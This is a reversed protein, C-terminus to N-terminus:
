NDKVQMALSFRFDTIETHSVLFTMVNKNGNTLTIDLTLTKSEGPALSFIETHVAGDATSMKTSGQVGILELSMTETGDNRIDYYFSYSSGATIAHATLFRMAMNKPATGSYTYAHGSENNIHTRRYASIKDRPDEGSDTYNYSDDVTGLYDPQGGTYKGCGPELRTYGDRAAFYPALTLTEGYAPILTSSTLELEDETDALYWGEITRGTTNDFLDSSPASVYEREKVSTPATDKATIGDPLDYVITVDGQAEREGVATASADDAATTMSMAVGFDFGNMAEGAVFYNLINQSTALSATYTYTASEGAALDIDVRYRTDEYTIGTKYESSSTITYYNLHLAESGYNEVNLSITYLAEGTCVASADTDMRFASYPTVASTEIIRQGAHAYGDEGGNVLVGNQYAITKNATISGPVTDFNFYSSVSDGLTLATYGDQPAFYPAITLGSKKITTTEDALTHTGYVYWGEVAYPLTNTIQEATPVVLTSGVEVETVYSSDVTIGDPLVLTITTKEAESITTPEDLDTKKLSISMGLTMGNAMDADAVLYTLANSNSTLTWQGVANMAEGPALDIDIRYTSLYATNGDRYDASGKVQYLNLHIDDDGMNEINYSFEYVASDDSLLSTDMDFRVSSSETIAAKETFIMGKEAYGTAGGSIIQEEEAVMDQNEPFSGYCGSYNIKTAGGHFDLATFGTKPAFYPLITINTKPITFSDFDYAVYRGTREQLVGIGELTREAPVNTLDFDDASLKAGYAFEKSTTKDAFTISSSALTVVVKLDPSPPDEKEYESDYDYKEEFDPRSDDYADNITVVAESSSSEGTSDGSTSDQSSIESTSSSSSSEEAGSCSALTLIPLLSLSILAFNKRKKM